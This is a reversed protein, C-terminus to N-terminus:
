DGLECVYALTMNVGGACDLDNWQWLTAAASHAGCNENGGSNNPEVGRWNMYVFPEGTVWVFNGESAIDNMGMWSGVVTM